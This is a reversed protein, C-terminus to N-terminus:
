PIYVVHLQIVHMRSTHCKNVWDRPSIYHLANSLMHMSFFITDKMLATPMCLLYSLTLLDCILKYTSIMGIM